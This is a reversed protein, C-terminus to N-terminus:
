LQQLDHRPLMQFPGQPIYRTQPLNFKWVLNPRTRTPEICRARHSYFYQAPTAPNYAEVM